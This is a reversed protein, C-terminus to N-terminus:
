LLIQKYLLISLSTGEVTVTHKEHVSHSDTFSPYAAAATATATATAASPASRVARRVELTQSSVVM